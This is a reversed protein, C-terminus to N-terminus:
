TARWSRARWPRFAQHQEVAVATELDRHNGPVLRHRSRCPELRLRRVDNGIDAATPFKSWAPVLCGLLVPVLRILIEDGHGLGSFLHSGQMQPNHSLAVTPQQHYVDVRPGSKNPAITQWTGRSSM